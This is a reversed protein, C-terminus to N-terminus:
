AAKKLSIDNNEISKQDKENIDKIMQSLQLAKLYLEHLSDYFEQYYKDQEKRYLM